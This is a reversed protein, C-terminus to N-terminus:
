PFPAPLPKIRIDNTLALVGPTERVILEAAEREEETYVLGSVTVHGREAHVELGDIAVRPSTVLIAEIRAALALDNLVQRSEPTPQLDPLEGTRLLLEVVTSPRLYETNVVLDYLEPRLWEVHHFYQHYGARDSDSQRVLTIAAQRDLHEERMVREVRVMFPAVTLTRLAHRVNKFLVQAALGLIVTTEQAAALEYLMARLLVSYRHREEDLRQLLTPKREAIEPPTQREATLGYRYAEAVMKSRDILPVGLRKALDEAIADGYSGIERSITYIIGVLNGGSHM